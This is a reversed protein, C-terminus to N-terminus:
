AELLEAERRFHERVKDKAEEQLTNPTVSEKLVVKKGESTKALYIASFGGAAIQSLVTVTDNRLHHGILGM